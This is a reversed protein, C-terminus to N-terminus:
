SAQDWEERQTNVYDQADIGKWIEAGLGHLEMVNHKAVQEEPAAKTLDQATIAILQIRDEISLVRIHRDYLEQISGVM